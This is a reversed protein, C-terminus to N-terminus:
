EFVISLTIVSCIVFCAGKKTSSVFRTSESNFFPFVRSISTETGDDASFEIFVPDGMSFGHNPLNVTIINGSQTATAGEFVRQPLEKSFLFDVNYVVGVAPLISLELNADQYISSGKIQEVDGSKVEVVVTFADIYLSNSPSITNEKPLVIQSEEGYLLKFLIEFSNLTGKASYFDKIKSIVLNPDIGEYFSINEFGPLYKQKFFFLFEKLFLNGLNKVVAESSHSVSETSNFIYSSNNTYKGLSTAGSFGRYCNIFQTDTKYEYGIIEDDIQLLGYKDPWGVTSEVTIISDYNEIDSSLITSEVISFLKEVTRYKLINRILDIDSGHAERSRFYTKLFDLFLPNEELIFDPILNSIFDEFSVLSHIIDM